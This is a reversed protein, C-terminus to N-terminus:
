PWCSRRRVEAVTIDYREYFAERGRRQAEVHEAHHRWAAQHEATDFLIISAREGDDATFVKFELFGPMTRALAEMRAATDRYEDGSDARLRSRFVTM